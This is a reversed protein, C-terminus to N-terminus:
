YNCEVPKSDKTIAPIITTGNGNSIIYEVHNQCLTKIQDYSNKELTKIHTSSTYGGTYRTTVFILACFLIGIVMGLFMVTKM